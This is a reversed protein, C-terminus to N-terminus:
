SNRRYSKVYNLIQEDFIVKDEEFLDVQVPLYYVPLDALMKEFGTTRLRQTDKETTLIIKEKSKGSSFDRVLKKIDQITFDYHDPYKYHRLHTNYKQLEELLPAPNSIGTLVFIEYDKITSLARAGSQYVQQLDGYKLYTHVVLQNGAPQLAKVSAKKDEATLGPPSKTVMLIQARKRSAFVDRLNGAPLLLQFSRLKAYEFLLINLGAEVKRHQFADDLIIVEHADKLLNIGTARQECVAVTVQRFKRYYQLPEDGISEATATEDAVIFGKTKRGYGRSLIAVKYDSLLRVLYETTPTKGSGGVALNGVCIVPIGFKESSLVKWDYLKKRLVVVAGYVLSFPVLLLRFYKLM